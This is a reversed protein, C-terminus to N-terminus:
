YGKVFTFRGADDEANDSQWYANGDEEYIRGTGSDYLEVVHEEGNEDYHYRTRRCDDYILDGTSEDYRATMNWYSGDSAGGSGQITIQYIGDSGDKKSIELFIRTGSAESWNGIYWDPLGFSLLSVVQKKANKLLNSKSNIKQAMSYIQDVDSQDLEYYVPAEYVFGGETNIEVVEDSLISTMDYYGQQPFPNKEKCYLISCQQSTDPWYSEDMQEAPYIVWMSGEKLSDVINGIKGILDEGYGLRQQVYWGQDQVAYEIGEYAKIQKGDGAEYTMEEMEKQLNKIDNLKELIVSLDDNGDNYVNLYTECYKKVKDLREYDWQEWNSIMGNLLEEFASERIVNWVSIKDYQDLNKIESVDNDYVYNRISDQVQKKEAANLNIKCDISPMLSVDESGSEEAYDDTGNLSVYRGASIYYSLAFGNYGMYNINYFDNEAMGYIEVYEGLPIQCVEEASTDPATRLTISEDCNVVLGEQYFENDVQMIYYSLVFGRYGAYDVCYFGNEAVGYIEVWEGAQIQCIEEASTDPQTRLTVSQDCHVVYGQQADCSDIDSGIVTVSM